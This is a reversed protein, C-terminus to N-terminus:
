RKRKDQMGYLVLQLKDSLSTSPTPSAAGKAKAKGKAPKSWLMCSM